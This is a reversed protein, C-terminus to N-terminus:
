ILEKHTHVEKVEDTFADLVEDVEDRAKIKM